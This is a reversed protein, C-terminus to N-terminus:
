IYLITFIVTHEDLVVRTLSNQTVHPYYYKPYISHIFQTVYHYSTKIYLIDFTQKIVYYISLTHM